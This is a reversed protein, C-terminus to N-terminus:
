RWQWGRPPPLYRGEGQWACGAAKYHFVDAKVKGHVVPLKEAATKHAWVQTIHNHMVLVLVPAQKGYSGGGFSAADDVGAAAAVCFLYSCQKHLVPDCGLEVMCTETGGLTVAPLPEPHLTLATDHHSGIGEAHTDVLGVHAKHHM